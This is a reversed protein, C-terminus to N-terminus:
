SNGGNRKVYHVEDVPPIEDDNVERLHAETLDHLRKLLAKDEPSMEQTPDAELKMLKVSTKQVEAMLSLLVQEARVKGDSNESFRKAVQTLAISFADAIQADPVTAWVKPTPNLQFLLVKYGRAMARATIWKFDM